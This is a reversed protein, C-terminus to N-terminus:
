LGAIYHAIAERDSAPLESMIKVMDMSNSRKGDAFDNMQKILYEYSQGALRPAPLGGVFNPQHCIQCVAIGNPPSAPAAAPHGAPWPKSAFYAAAPRLEEQSLTKAMAAMIANDRDGTRYDHLQKVLFYQQQGWIIPITKPDSPVGNQGHCSGCVQVKAEIDDAASAPGALAAAAILVGLVTAIRNNLMAM